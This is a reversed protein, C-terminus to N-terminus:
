DREKDSPIKIETERKREGRARASTARRSARTLEIEVDLRRHHSDRRPAALFRGSSSSAPTAAHSWSSSSSTWRAPWRRDHGVLPPDLALPRRFTTTNRARALRTRRVERWTTEGRHQMHIYTGRRWTERGRGREREEKWGLGGTDTQEKEVHFICICSRHVFRYTACM